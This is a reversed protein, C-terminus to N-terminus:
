LLCHHVNLESHQGTHFPGQSQLAQFSAPLAQYGDQFAKFGDPLNKSLAPPAELPAPHAESLQIPRLPLQIPRLPFQISRLPLTSSERLREGFSRSAGQTVRHGESASRFGEAAWFPYYISSIKTPCSNGDSNRLGYTSSSSLKMLNM